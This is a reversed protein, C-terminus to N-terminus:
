DIKLITDYESHPGIWFWVMEGADNAALARYARGVRVSWLSGVQKFHLSPHNPNDRLLQYNEDALKRIEEPLRHYCKWFDTTTFHNM